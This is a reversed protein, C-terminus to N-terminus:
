GVELLSDASTELRLPMLRRRHQDSKIPSLKWGMVSGRFQFHLENNVM